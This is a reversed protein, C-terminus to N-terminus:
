VPLLHNNQNAPNLHPFLSFLAYFYLVKYVFPFFISYFFLLKNTLFLCVYFIINCIDFILKVYVSKILVHCLGILVQFNVSEIYCSMKIGFMTNLVICHITYWHQM